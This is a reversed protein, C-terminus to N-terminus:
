RASHRAPLLGDLADVAEAPHRGRRLEYCPVDRLKQEFTSWGPLSRAYSQGLRMRQRARTAPLRTLLTGRAPRPSVFVVAHLRPPSAALGLGSRRLDLEHKRVGSRREIVPSQRIRRVLAADQVFRLSSDRLHLFNAVGTCLLRRPHIFTADETVLGMDRAACLLALTSKGAGSDGILLLGAGARGICAAHLPILRQARCALTFVAFEILEYRAHYPYALLEKSVVVLGRRHAPDLVAFNAADMGGFLLGAGGQMRMPPPHARAGPSAHASSHLRIRFASRGAELVHAPLDRYAEDVLSLLRRSNSQFEFQRGLLRFRRRFPHAIREDFPDAGPGHRSDTKKEPM